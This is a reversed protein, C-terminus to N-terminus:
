LCIQIPSSAIGEEEERKGERRGREGGSGRERGKTRVGGSASGWGPPAVEERGGRREGEAGREGEEGEAQLRASSLSPQVRAGIPHLNPNPNPHEEEERRKTRSNLQHNSQEISLSVVMRAYDQAEWAWTNLIWSSLVQNSHNSPQSYSAMTWPKEVVEQHRM